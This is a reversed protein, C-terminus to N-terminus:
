GISLSHQVTNIGGINVTSDSPISLFGSSANSLAFSSLLIKHEVGNRAIGQLNKHATKPHPEFSIVNPVQAVKAAFLSYWGMHAGADVFLRSSSANNLPSLALGVLLTLGPEWVGCAAVVSSVGITSLCLQSFFIKQKQM